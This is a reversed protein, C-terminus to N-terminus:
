RDLVNSNEFFNVIQDSLACIKKSASISDPNDLDNKSVFYSLSQKNNRGFLKSLQFYLESLRNMDDITLINLAEKSIYTSYSMTHIADAIESNDEFQLSYFGNLMDERTILETGLAYQLFESKSMENNAMKEFYIGYFYCIDSQRDLRLVITNNTCDAYVSNNDKLKTNSLLCFLNFILLAAAIITFLLLLLKSRTM